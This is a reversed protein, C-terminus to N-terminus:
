GTIRACVKAQLQYCGDAFPLLIVTSIIEHCDGSFYPVLGHTPSNYRHTSHLPGMAGLVVVPTIM